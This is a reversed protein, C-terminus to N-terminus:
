PYFNQLVQGSWACDWQEQLNQVVKGEGDVRVEEYLVENGGKTSLWTSEWQGVEGQSQHTIKPRSKVVMWSYELGQIM